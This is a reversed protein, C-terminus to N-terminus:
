RNVFGVAARLQALPHKLGLSLALLAMGIKGRTSTSATFVPSTTSKILQRVPRLRARRSMQLVRPFKKVNFSFQALMDERRCWEKANILNQALRNSALLFPLKAAPAHKHTVM